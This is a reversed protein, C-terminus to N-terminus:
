GSSRAARPDSSRLRRRSRRRRGLFRVAGSLLRRTRAHRRASGHRRRDRSGRDASDGPDRSEGRDPIGELRAARLQGPPDRSLLRSHRGARLAGRAAASRLEAAHRASARHGARRSQASEERAGRRRRSHAAVARNGGCRRRAGPPSGDRHRHPQARLRHHLFRARREGHSRRDDSEGTFHMMGMVNQGRALKQRIANPRM